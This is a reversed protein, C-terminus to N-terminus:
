GGPGPPPLDPIYCGVPVTRVRPLDKGERLALLVDRLDRSTPAARRVGLEPYRDDIRGRYVVAGGARVVAVEPTVTAGLADVLEHRPDLLIPLDYGYERAHASAREADVAPDVHVLAFLVGDAEFERALAQIEPAYGNAIPCDVTTFVLVRARAGEVQLPHWTRGTVDLLV